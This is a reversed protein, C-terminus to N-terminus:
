PFPDPEPKRNRSRDRDTEAGLFAALRALDDAQLLTVGADRAFRWLEEDHPLAWYRLLQGREQATAADARLRVRDQTPPAEDGGRWEFRSRWSASVLPAVSAPDPEGPRGDLFAYAPDLARLADVPRAGSVIVTLEGPVVVGAERRTLYPRLPALEDLLLELCREGKEKFDVLLLFGGENALSDGHVSGKAGLRKRLPELYLERLRRKALLEFRTHAVWLEGQVPYVDAEVSRYGHDLADLLPREHYYDNHAHAALLM